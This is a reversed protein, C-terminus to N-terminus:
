SISFYFLQRAINKDVSITNNIGDNEMFNAYDRRVIIDVSYWFLLGAKAPRTRRPIGIPVGGSL